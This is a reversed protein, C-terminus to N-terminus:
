LQKAPSEFMANPDIGSDTRIEQEIIGLVNTLYNLNNSLNMPQVQSSDGTTRWTNVLQNMQPDGDVFDTNGMILAVRSALISGDVMAQMIM